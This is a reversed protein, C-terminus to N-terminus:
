AFYPRQCKVAVFCANETYVLGRRGIAVAMRLEPLREELLVNVADAGVRRRSFSTDLPRM